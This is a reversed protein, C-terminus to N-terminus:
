LAKSVFMRCATSVEVVFVDEPTSASYCAQEMHAVKVRVRLSAFSKRWVRKLIYDVLGLSAEEFARLSTAALEAAAGFSLM